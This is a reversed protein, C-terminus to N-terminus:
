VHRVVFGRRLPAEDTGPVVPALPHSSGDPDLLWRHQHGAPLPQRPCRVAPLDAHQRRGLLLPGDLHLQRAPRAAPGQQVPVNSTSRRSRTTTTKSTPKPRARTASAEPRQQRGQSTRRDRKVKAIQLRFSGPGGAILASRASRAPRRPWSAATPAATPKTRRGDHLSAPPKRAAPHAPLSNSPQVTPDLKAGFKVPAKALGAAPAVM